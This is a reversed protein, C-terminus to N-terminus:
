GRGPALLGAPPSRWPPLDLCFRPILLGIESLPLRRNEPGPTRGTGTPDRGERFRKEPLKGGGLNFRDKALRQVFPPGLFSGCVVAGGQNAGAEVVAVAIGFFVRLSELRVIEQWLVFGCLRFWFWRGLFHGVLRPGRHLDKLGDIM